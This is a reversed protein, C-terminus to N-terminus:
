LAGVLTRWGTQLLWVSVFVVAATIKAIYAIPNDLIDGQDYDYKYRILYEARLIFLGVVYVLYVATSLLVSGMCLLFTGLGGIIIGWPILVELGGPGEKSLEIARLILAGVLVPTSVIAGRVVSLFSAETNSFAALGLASVFSSAMFCVVYGPILMLVYSSLSRRARWLRFTINDFVYVILHSLLFALLLLVFSVLPLGFWMIKFLLAYFASFALMRNSSDLLEAVLLFATLSLFVFGISINRRVSFATAGFLKTRIILFQGHLTAAQNPSTLWDLVVNKLTLSRSLILLLSYSFVAAGAPVALSPVKEVIADLSM